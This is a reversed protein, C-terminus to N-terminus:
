PFTFALKRLTVGEFTETGTAVDVGGAAQYFRVASPNDELAWVATGSLGRSRILMRAAAFLRQGFGIGQFEPRLYLEYVEGEVGLARTRNRGLTAYGGMEGGYELVLIAAQNQIASHWWAANRREVMRTLTRFPILGAYAGRWSAEHVRSLAAADRPEALRIEAAITKM